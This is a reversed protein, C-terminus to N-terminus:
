TSYYTSSRGMYIKSSKSMARALQNVTNLIDYRCVQALYLAAGTISQYRRKGEENLLNEEPQDLFLTPEVGPSYAPNCDRMGYRQVIDETYDKQNITITEKERDRTVNMGLVRSVDGMGTMESRDMLQKNLKDLLQKIAGLPLVEDMYLTLIASGNEDEYVYVCPDSKLSRFEIKGLRHDMTSSWNKPSQRLGYLIKKLKMALPVGGPAMKVFVEEEVDANLFTTQVDLM